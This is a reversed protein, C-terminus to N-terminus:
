PGELGGDAMQQMAEDLKRDAEGESLGTTDVTVSDGVDVGGVGRDVQEMRDRQQEVATCGVALVVVSLTASVALLVFIAKLWFRATREVPPTLHSPNSQTM